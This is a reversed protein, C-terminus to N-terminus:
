LWFSLLRGHLQVWSNRTGEGGSPEAIAGHATFSSGLLVSACVASASEAWTWHSTLAVSANHHSARTLCTKFTKSCFWWSTACFINTDKIMWDRSTKLTRQRLVAYAAAWISLAGQSTGWINILEMIKPICLASLENEILSRRHCVQAGLCM